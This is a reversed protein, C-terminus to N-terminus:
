LRYILKKTYVRIGQQVKLLYIGNTLQYQNLSIKQNAQTRTNFVLAGNLTYLQVDFLQHVNNSSTSLIIFDSTPNPYVSLELDDHNLLLAPAYNTGDNNAYPTGDVLSSAKWYAPLNPDGTPNDEVSCLSYGEGDPAEPWPLKDDYTFSLVPQNNNDFLAILEGGNSLNKAYNGSPYRGYKEYFWNPKSAIVYFQKPALLAEEPFLFEIASDLKLGSLDIFNDSTNKFEIFEFDQGSITDSGVILDKPHYHLETVKFSSYDENDNRFVVKKLPGWTGNFYIRTNIVTTETISLETPNSGAIADSAIAGGVNRPDTNNLTYYVIGSTGIQKIAVIKSNSFSVTNEFVQEGALYIDPAVANFYLGEQTLQQIVIASRYPFYNNYMTQIEPLWDDIKTLSNNRQADGWRASEAIVAMNIQDARSKFLAASKEPSLVGGKTLYQYARDAFRVCYESNASLKYHLWQPNFDWLKNIKMSGNSGINVRNENIGNFGFVSEVFLSHESDHALFKFGQSKNNRNYIAFFNNPMDNGGWGSVPADFNGSYFIVMMYDILNDIDVWVKGNPDYTGDAKKGELAFYNTNNAFGTQCKKWLEEWAEANGDTVECVYPWPQTNVKVVDYDDEDGGFYTKAYDAEAREDTQFIGWYMGNLYLHYYRGRCYPQGMQGQLDRCFIDKVLTNHYSGDMSWSYNQECRLDICDFESAGENDFLPFELKSAGYEDRFYFRFAHKPNDKNKASNGGRIRLGANVQFQKGYEAELLEVSCPREWDIGKQEANVYIGTGPDFLNALDTVISISPIQTLAAEMQTAYIGNTVVDGAMEYDIVQQNIRANPWEGGPAKQTKVEDLFIYTQTTSLSPAFGDAVLSARVVYAPTKGRGTTSTPNINIKFPSAVNNGTSSTAPDSGDITYLIQYGSKPSSLELDFANTYFGAEHSFKVKDNYILSPLPPLEAEANMKVDFYFDSSTLTVNLGMIAITNEGDLLGLNECKVEFAVNNGSEHNSIAMATNSLNDPANVALAKNGNIWIVFGDDYNVQFSITHINEVQIANFTSRLYVTSYQDQMDSLATGGSGDGYRFPANGTKWNSVDFSQNSWNSSLSQAENGKLYRFVGGQEFNIQANAFQAIGIFIGIFLVITNKIM